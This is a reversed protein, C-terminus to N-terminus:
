SRGGEYGVQAAHKKATLRNRIRTSETSCLYDPHGHSPGVASRNHVNPVLITKNSGQSRAQKGTPRVESGDLGSGLAGGSM